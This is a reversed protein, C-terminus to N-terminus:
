SYLHVMELYQSLISIYQIQFLTPVVLEASPLIIVLDEWMHNSVVTLSM